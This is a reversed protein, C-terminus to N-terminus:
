NEAGYMQWLLIIVVLAALGLRYWAFPALGHRTLFAVFWRVAFAASVTAAVFGIALAGWGFHVLMDTGHTVTEYGTAAGLTILGLLFSFEAAARPRTGLLLATAITMMARSMGPWMAVCQGVGILLAIKWTIQDLHLGRHESHNLKRSYAIALMLWAGVFLAGAIPWPGNLHERIPGALIPGLAAAPLFAVILNFALKRGAEHESRGLIGLIMDWIRQRYLGIVAAIAGAQIIIDFTFAAERSEETANLGLWENVLLLHGTSSVPLYETLGEVIGLILAQWWEMPRIWGEM